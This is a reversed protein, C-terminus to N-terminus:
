PRSLMDIVAADDVQRFDDYFEGIAFFSMPQHLAIVEDAESSLSAVADPPGVPVAVVIKGPRESRVTRLAARLTYGTAMGDDVLLVTKGKLDRPQRGSRYASLRRIAEERERHVIKELESPEFRGREKENWVAEGSEVLAGIAYEEHGPAGLKRPVVIDIPLHLEDAIVRGVAVGGRPLAIVVADKAGDYNKLEHALKRGADERDKFRM